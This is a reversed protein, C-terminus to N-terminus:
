GLRDRHCDLRSRDARIWARIPIWCPLCGLQVAGKALYTAVTALRHITYYSNEVAQCSPLPPWSINEVRKAATAVFHQRNPAVLRKKLQRLQGTQRRPQWAQFASNRESSLEVAPVHAIM